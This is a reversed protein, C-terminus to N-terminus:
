SDLLKEHFFNLISDTTDDLLNDTLHSEPIYDLLSEKLIDRLPSFFQSSLDNITKRINPSKKPIVKDKKKPLPRANNLLNRLADIYRQAKEIGKPTIQITSFYKKGQPKQILHLKENYILAQSLQSKEFPLFDQLHKYTTINNEDKLTSIAILVIQPANFYM